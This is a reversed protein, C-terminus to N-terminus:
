KNMADTVKIEGAIIKKRAEEVQQIADPPILPKKNDDMANNEDMAYGVGDKDLGYVHFGTKFQGSVVDNIIDYVANDVRKVMSTLVFGPKVMNQNADVGIVFHTARGNKKGQQEVADFAGLGSNGAATFIVDAGKSIQALAIEKGKGPNNWAADTVGVYNPIVRINPNVAKAGEEYGEKFRHILGIDMGGLFGITGTQTTRAAMMGVLYSGEHEKFLLSAVNPLNSVGDVVAFRINPYDKAVSEIIPMQAFGIGIILDYNREAFARMAPEISTPNGPEIDRLVIDLRQKGCSTGDPWNGSAACKAGAWAAANFSRDDKGGIDFVIGVRIKSTDESGYSQNSCASAILSLLILGALLCLICTSRKM